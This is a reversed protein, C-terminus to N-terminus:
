SAVHWLLLACGFILMVSLGLAIAIANDIRKSV